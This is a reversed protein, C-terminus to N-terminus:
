RAQRTHACKLMGSGVRPHTTLHPALGVMRYFSTTCMLHCRLGARSLRAVGVRRHLAVCWQSNIFYQRSNYLATAWVAGTWFGGYKISFPACVKQCLCGCWAARVLALSQLCRGVALARQCASSVWARTGVCGAADDAPSVDDATPFAVHWVMERSIPVGASWNSVQTVLAARAEAAGSLPPFLSAKPAPCMCPLTTSM